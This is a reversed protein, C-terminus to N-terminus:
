NTIEDFHILNSSISDIRVIDVGPISSVDTKICFLLCTRLGCCWLLFQKFSQLNESLITVRKCISPFMKSDILM